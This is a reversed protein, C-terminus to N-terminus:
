EKYPETARDMKYYDMVFVKVMPEDPMDFVKPLLERYTSIDQTRYYVFVGDYEYYTFPRETAQNTYPREAYACGIVLSLFILGYGILILRVFTKLYAKM